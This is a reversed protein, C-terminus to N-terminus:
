SLGLAAMGAQACARDQEESGGSCGIGGVVRGEHRLPLGGGFLVVGERSAIGDHLHPPEAVANHLDDTSLGFTAATWAKDRAIGVSAVFAGTPRVCAVLNGGPDVVATVMACGLERGKAVAAQVAKLAAEDTIADQRATLQFDM